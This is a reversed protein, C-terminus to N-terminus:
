LRRRVRNFLHWLSVAKNHINHHKGRSPDNHINYHKGRSPDHFNYNHLTDNILADICLDCLRQVVM